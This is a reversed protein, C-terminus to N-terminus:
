DGKIEIYRQIKYTTNMQTHKVEVQILTFFESLNFQYEKNTSDTFKHSFEDFALSSIIVDYQKNAATPYAITISEPNGTSPRTKLSTITTSEVNDFFTISESTKLKQKLEEMVTRAINVSVDTKEEKYSNQYLKTFLYSVSLIVMSVIVISVLLEILTIGKESKM